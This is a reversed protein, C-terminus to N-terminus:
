NLLRFSHKDTFGPIERLREFVEEANAKLWSIAPSAIGDYTTTDLLIEGTQRDLLAQIVSSYHGSTLIVYLPKNNRLAVTIQYEAGNKEM